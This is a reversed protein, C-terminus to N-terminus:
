QRRDYLVRVEQCALDDRAADMGEMLMVMLCSALVSARAEAPTQAADDILQSNLVGGHLGPSDPHSNLGIEISTIQGSQKALQYGNWGGLVAAVLGGGAALLLLLGKTTENMLHVMGRDRAIM